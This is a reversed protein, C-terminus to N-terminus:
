DVIIILNILKNGILNIKTYIILFILNFDM